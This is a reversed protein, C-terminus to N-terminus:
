DRPSPSTYLLCIEFPEFIRSAADYLSEEGGEGGLVWLHFSDQGVSLIFSSMSVRDQTTWFVGAGFDAAGYQVDRVM